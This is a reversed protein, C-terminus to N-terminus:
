VGGVAVSLLSHARLWGRDDLPHFVRAKGLGGSATKGKNLKLKLNKWLSRGDDPSGRELERSPTHRRTGRTVSTM